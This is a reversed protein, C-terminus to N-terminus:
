SKRIGGKPQKFTYAPFSQPTVFFSSGETYKATCRFTKGNDHTAYLPFIKRQVYIFSGETYFSFYQREAVQTRLRFM